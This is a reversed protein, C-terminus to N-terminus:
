TQLAEDNRQMDWLHKLVGDLVPGIVGSPDLRAHDVGGEQRGYAVFRGPVRNDNRDQDVAPGAVNRTVPLAPSGGAGPM